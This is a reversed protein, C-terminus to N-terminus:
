KALARALQEATHQNGKPSMQGFDSAELYLHGPDDPGAAAMARLGELEDVVEIGLSTACAAVKKFGADPEAKGAVTERAYQMLVLMRIGGADARRKLREILACTVGVTDSGAPM